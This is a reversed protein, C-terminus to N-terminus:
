REDEWAEKLIKSLANTEANHHKLLLILIFKQILGYLILQPSLLHKHKILMEQIRFTEKLLEDLVEDALKELKDADYIFARPKIAM